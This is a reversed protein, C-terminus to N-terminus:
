SGYFKTLKGGKNGRKRESQMKGMLFINELCAKCYPAELTVGQLEVKQTNPTHGSIIPQNCM